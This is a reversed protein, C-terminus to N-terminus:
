KKELRCACLKKVLGMHLHNFDRSYIRCHTHLFGLACQGCCVLDLTWDSTLLIVSGHRTVGTEGKKEPWGCRWKGGGQDTFLPTNENSIILVKLCFFLFLPLRFCFSFIDTHTQRTTTLPSLLSEERQTIFATQCCCLCLPEIPGDTCQLFMSRQKYGPSSLKTEASHWSAYM